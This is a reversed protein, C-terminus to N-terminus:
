HHQPKWASSFHAKFNWPKDVKKPDSQCSTFQIQVTKIENESNKSIRKLNTKIKTFTEIRLTKREDRFRSSAFQRPIKMNFDHKFFNTLNCFAIALYQLVFDIQRTIKLNNRWKFIQWIAINLNTPLGLWKSSNQFQLKM